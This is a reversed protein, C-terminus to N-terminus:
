RAHFRVALGANSLQTKFQQRARLYHELILDFTFEGNKTLHPDLIVIKCNPTAIAKTRQSEWVEDMLHMYSNLFRMLFGQVRGPQRVYTYHTCLVLLPSSRLQRAHDEMISLLPTKEVVGGDMYGCTDGNWDDVPHMIGPLCMSAMLAEILPGKSFIVKRSLGDDTCALAKFPVELEEFTRATIGSELGERFNRAGVFGDPLRKKILYGFLGKVIADWRLFDVVGPYNLSLLVELMKEKNCGNAWAAGVIAGASTGWIERVHPRVGLEDLIGAFAANGALAPVSGGGFSVALYNEENEVLRRLVRYEAPDCPSDIEVRQQQIEPSLRQEGIRRKKSRIM